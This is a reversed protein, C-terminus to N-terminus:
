GKYHVRYNDPVEYDWGKFQEQDDSAIKGAGPRKKEEMMGCDMLAYTQDCNAKFDPVFPPEVEQKEIAKWDLDKFWEHDMIQEVTWREPGPVLMHKLLNQVKSPIKKPYSIEPPTYVASMNTEWDDPKIFQSTIKESKGPIPISGCLLEFLIAGLGWVDAEFGYRPSHEKTIKFIEPAMYRRTGAFGKAKGHKNVKTSINFDTLHAYGRKCLMINDPKLDRHLVGEKQIHKLGILINATWFKAVDESVTGGLERRQYQLDGGEMFDLVMYLNKSDQFSFHLNVIFPSHVESLMKREEMMLKLTSSGKSLLLGKSIVKLAYLDSEGKKTSMVHVKGFSGMGMTRNVSFVGKGAIEITSSGNGM